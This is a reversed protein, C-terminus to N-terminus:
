LSLFTWKDIIAERITSHINNSCSGQFCKIKFLERSFRNKDRRKYNDYLEIWYNVNKWELSRLCHEENFHEEWFLWDYILVKDWQTLLMYLLINCSDIKTLDYATKIKAVNLDRMRKVKKEFRLINMDELGYQKAKDYVKVDFNTRCIRKFESEQVHSIHKFPLPRAGKGSHLLINRVVNPSNYPLDYLNVGFELHHLYIEDASIGLTYELENLVEQYDSKTFDNYNHKGDNGFVHFSGEITILGGSYKKFTLNKYTGEFDPLYKSRKKVVEGTKLDINSSWQIYPNRFLIDFDNNRLDAKFFDYM